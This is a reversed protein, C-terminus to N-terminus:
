IPLRIALIMNTYLYIANYVKVGGDPNLPVVKGNNDTPLPTGDPKLPNGDKDYPLVSGDTGKM